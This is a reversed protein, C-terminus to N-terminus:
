NKRKNPSIGTSIKRTFSNLLREALMLAKAQADIIRDKGEIVERLRTIEKQIDAPSNSTVPAHQESQVGTQVFADFDYGAKRIADMYEGKIVKDKLVSYLTGRSMGTTKAFDGKKINNIRLFLSLKEGQHM